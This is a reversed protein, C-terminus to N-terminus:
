RLHRGKVGADDTTSHCDFMLPQTEQDGGGCACVQCANRLRDIKLARGFPWLHEM